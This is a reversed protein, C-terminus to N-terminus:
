APIFGLTKLHSKIISEQLALQSYLQRAEIPDSTDFDFGCDDNGWVCVRHLGNSLSLLSLCVFKGQHRQDDKIRFESYWDDFTQKFCDIRM